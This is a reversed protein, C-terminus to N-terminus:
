QHTGIVYVRAASCLSNGTCADELHVFKQHTPSVIVYTSATQPTFICTCVHLLMYLYINADIIM